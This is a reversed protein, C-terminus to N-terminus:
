KGDLYNTLITKSSVEKVLEEIQKRSLFILILYCTDYGDPFNDLYNDPDHIEEYLITAIAKIFATKDKCKSFIHEHLDGNYLYENIDKILFDGNINLTM